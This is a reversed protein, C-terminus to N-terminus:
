SDGIRIIEPCDHATIEFIVSGDKDKFKFTSWTIFSKSATVGEDDEVEVTVARHVSMYVDPM